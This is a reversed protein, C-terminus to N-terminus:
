QRGSEGSEDAETDTHWRYLRKIGNWLWSVGYPVLSFERSRKRHFGELDEPREVKDNRDSM